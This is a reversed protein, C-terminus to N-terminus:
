ASHASAAAMAVDAGKIAVETRNRAHLKKMIHRVHVKVTSECMNLEYAIVKNPKGQRIAKIVALERVTITSEGATESEVAQAQRAQLLCQPPVYTGGAAVFRLAQIFVDFGASMSIYGNAGQSLAAYAENLDDAKALVMSRMPPDLDMLRALEAAAEDRSLSISSLLAVASGRDARDRALESLSAYAAAEGPWHSAVSYLLCDRQFADREVIVIACPADSTADQREKEATAGNAGALFSNGGDGDPRSQDAPSM